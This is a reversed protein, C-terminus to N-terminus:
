ADKSKIAFSSNDTQTAKTLNFDFQYQLSFLQQASSVYTQSKNSIISQWANGLDRASTLTSNDTTPVAKGDTYTLNSFLNSDMGVNFRSTMDAYGDSLYQRKLQDYSDKPFFGKIFNSKFDVGYVNGTEDRTAFQPVSPVKVNAKSLIELLADSQNYLAKNSTITDNAQDIISKESESFVANAFMHKLNAADDNSKLSEAKKSGLDVTFTLEDRGVKVTKGSQDKSTSDTLNDVVTTTFQSSVNQYADDPKHIVYVFFMDDNLGPYGVMEANLKSSEVISGAYKIKTHMQSADRPMQATSGNSFVLPLYTTKGDLSKYLKSSTVTTGSVSFSSTNHNNFITEDYSAVKLNNHYANSSLHWGFFMLAVAGSAMLLQKTLIHHQSGKAVDDVVGLVNSGARKLWRIVTPTQKNVNTILKKSKLSLKGESKTDSKAVIAKPEKHNKTSKKTSKKAKDKPIKKVKKVKKSKVKSSSKDDIDLDKDHLSTRKARSM